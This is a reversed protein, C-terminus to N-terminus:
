LNEVFLSRKRLTRMHTRVLDAIHDPDAIGTMTIERDTADTSIIEVTGLGFVRDMMSKCVRVDDVRILETQDVTQSLIGRTIFLRQTTLRYRCGVVALIMRGVVVLGTALMVMLFTIVAKGGTLWGGRGHLWFLLVVVLILGGTWLALSPAFHKWHTRGVWLDSEATPDISAGDGRGTMAAAPSDASEAERPKGTVPAPHEAPEVPTDETM